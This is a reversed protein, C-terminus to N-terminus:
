TNSYGLLSRKLAHSDFKDRDLAHAHVYRVYGFVKSCLNLVFSVTHLLSLTHLSTLYNIIYALIRNILFMVTMIAEAWFRKPLLM